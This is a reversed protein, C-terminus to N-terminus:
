EIIARYYNLDIRFGDTSGFQYGIARGCVKSYQGSAHYSSFVPVVEKLLFQDHM